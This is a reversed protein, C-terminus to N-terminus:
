YIEDVNIESHRNRKSDYNQFYSLKEGESRKNEFRLQRWIM